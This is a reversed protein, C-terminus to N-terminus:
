GCEPLALIDSWQGDAHTQLDKGNAGAVVGVDARTPGTITFFTNSGREISSIVDERKSKWGEGGLHTIGEHPNLRPEKNICKVQSDAM